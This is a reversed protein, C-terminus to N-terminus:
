SRRLVITTWGAHGRIDVIPGGPVTPPGAKDKLTSMSGGAFGDTRAIMADGLRIRVTTWSALIEIVCGTVPILAQGLDLDATGMTGTIVLHGPVEWHGRRKVTTWDVNITDAGGISGGPLATGAPPFLAAATPLDNLAARLDGRTKAAYVTKSREEFEQLDLYGGGVADHLLAVAQERERNGVRLADPNDPQTM